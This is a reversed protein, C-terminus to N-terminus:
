PTRGLEKQLREVARLWLMRAAGPTRNLQRGIEEFSQQEQHRLVIAQRYAAPLRQLALRMAEAEENAIAEQSPTPTDAAVAVGSEASSDGSKLAVERGVQRKDTGRYHRRFNALNHLLLIRLWALLEAESDGQFDAFDRQAELFTQQVLDSGGGKAHLDSGLQENAIRLLYGRCAELVAGLADRSGARAACLREASENESASM